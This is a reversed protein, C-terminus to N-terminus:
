FHYFFFSNPKMSKNNPQTTQFEGFFLESRWCVIFNHDVMMGDLCVDELWFFDCRKMNKLSYSPNLHKVFKNLNKM